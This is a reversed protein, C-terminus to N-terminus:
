TWIEDYEEVVTWSSTSHPSQATEHDTDHNQNLQIHKVPKVPEDFDTDLKQFAEVLADEIVARDRDWDIGDDEDDDSTDVVEFSPTSVSPISASKATKSAQKNKISKLKIIFFDDTSHPAEYLLQAYIM